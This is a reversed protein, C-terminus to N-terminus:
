TELIVETAKFLPSKVAEFYSVIQTYNNITLEKILKKRLRFNVENSKYSLKSKETSCDSSPNIDM